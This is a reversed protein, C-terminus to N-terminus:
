LSTERAIHPQVTGNEQENDARRVTSKAEKRKIWMLLKQPILGGAVPRLVYLWGMPFLIDMQKFNHYRVKAESIRYSFKRREYSDKNERYLLLNEQINYGKYGAQQFRMFIEYDECRLTESSVKYGEMTRFIESCYMVSPHIYPSYKLYEQRGPIEPMHREGWIGMEDFIAANSGCWMYDSHTELFAVQKELRTSISIDDADMRAIYKGQAKQICENLSFALGNNEEKGILVIREDLVDLKQIYQAAKEDSGDDYIIFEFDSLTQQLISDVAELLIKEDWQNYVGMIVSVKKEYNKM